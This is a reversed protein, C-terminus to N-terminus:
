KINRQSDIVFIIHKYYIFAYFVKVYPRFDIRVKKEGMISRFICWQIFWNFFSM